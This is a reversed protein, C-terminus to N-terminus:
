FCVVYGCMYGVNWGVCKKFMGTRAFANKCFSHGWAVKMNLCISWFQLHSAPTSLTPFPTRFCLALPFPPSLTHTGCIQSLVYVSCMCLVIASVRAKNTKKQLFSFAIHTFHLLYSHMTATKCLFLWCMSFILREVYGRCASDVCYAWRTCALQPKKMCMKAWIPFFMENLWVPNPGWKGHKTLFLTPITLHAKILCHTYNIFDCDLLELWCFVKFHQQEISLLIQLVKNSNKKGKKKITKSYHVYYGWYM